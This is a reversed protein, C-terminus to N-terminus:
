LWGQDRYWGVARHVGESWPVKPEWGLDRRTELSSCVWDQMLMNAKERTLMVPKNAVRGLAELGRAVTMLVPVPLNARLIAKKGLAREADALMQKATLPGCGDDVFYTRAGGPPLDADIARVCAEACDTAYIWMGKAHGGDILPLLGRRITRFAEFIENDRPGYIAGPRLIVVPVEDKAALVVKEAALKSRGYATVPNEQDVPVPNGDASPGCAELSSVFVFRRLPRRRVAEILNSTGGVNVAFFEDTDRAKVLGACHVVADVGFAAERVRDPQEITGEFLEVNPLGALHKRNSSARVLARVQDGRASLLEAVHGGLFGSAGTVLVKM